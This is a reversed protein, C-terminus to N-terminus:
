LRYSSLGQSRPQWRKLFAGRDWGTKLINEIWLAFVAKKSNRGNSFRKRFAEDTSAAGHLERGRRGGRRGIKPRGPTQKSEGRWPFYSSHTLEACLFENFHQRPILHSFGLSITKQKAMKERNPALAEIDNSKHSYLRPTMDWSCVFACTGSVCAFLSRRVGSTFKCTLRSASLTLNCSAFSYTVYHSVHLM